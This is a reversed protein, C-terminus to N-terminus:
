EVRVVSSPVAIMASGGAAKVMRMCSSDGASTTAPRCSCRFPFAKKDFDKPNFHVIKPEKGLAKAIAKVIGTCLATLPDADPMGGHLAQYFSQKRSVALYIPLIACACPHMDGDFSIARDSALNFQQKVASDNGPVAALMEALDEVHSLNVLQIGPAPIPVPRDRYLSDSPGRQNRVGEPKGHTCCLQRRGHAHQSGAEGEAWLLHLRAIPVAHLAHVDKTQLRLRCRIIRDVFWQECDKNTYPGYIYQPQFVTYPLDQEELYKEVEVQL